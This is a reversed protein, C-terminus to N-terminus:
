GKTHTVTSVGNANIKSMSTDLIGPPILPAISSNVLNGSHGKAEAVGFTTSGAIYMEPASGDLKVLTSTRYTTGEKFYTPIATGDPQLSAPVSLSAPLPEKFVTESYTQGDGSVIVTSTEQIVAGAPPAVSSGNSHIQRTNKIWGFNFRWIDLDITVKEASLPSYSEESRIVPM